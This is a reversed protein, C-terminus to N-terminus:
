SGKAADLRQEDTSAARLAKLADAARKTHMKVRDNM